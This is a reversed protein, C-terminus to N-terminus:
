KGGKVRKKIAKSVIGAIKIQRVAPYLYPKADHHKTGFEQFVARADPLNDGFRIEYTVANSDNPLEVYRGSAKLEGTRKPADKRATETIADVAELLGDNMGAIALAPYMLFRSLDVEISMNMYRGPWAQRPKGGRILAFAAAQPKTLRLYKFRARTNRIKIAM